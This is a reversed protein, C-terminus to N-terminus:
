VCRLGRALQIELQAALHATHAPTQTGRRWKVFVSHTSPPLSPAPHTAGQRQKYSSLPCSLRRSIQAVGSPIYQLSLGESLSPSHPRPRACPPVYYTSPCLGPARANLDKRHHKVRKWRYERYIITKTLFIVFYLVRTEGPVGRRGAEQEEMRAETASVEGARGGERGGEEGGVEGTGGELWGRARRICNICGIHRTAILITGWVRLRIGPIRM